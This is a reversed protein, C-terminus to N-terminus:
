HGRGVETWLGQLDNRPVHRLEALPDRLRSLRRDLVGTGDMIADARVAGGSRRARQPENSEYPGGGSVGPGWKEIM